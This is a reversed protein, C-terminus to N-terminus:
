ELIERLWQPTILKRSIGIGAYNLKMKHRIYIINRSWHVELSWNDNMKYGISTGLMFGIESEPSTSGFRKEARQQHESSVNTFEMMSFVVASKPALHIRPTLQFQWGWGVNAQINRFGPIDSNPLSSFSAYRGGVFFYGAYFPTEIDVQVAPNPQWYEHFVNRNLNSQYSLGLTLSEFAEHRIQSYGTAPILILIIGAFLILGTKFLHTVIM